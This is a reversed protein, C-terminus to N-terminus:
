FIGAQKLSVYRNDGIIIHDLLHIGVVMGAERFKKTTQIDERSPTPDGSPHNHMLIIYVANSRLATRFAERTSAISSNITGKSLEFDGLFRHKTNLMVIFLHETELHRLDEMYYRAIIEPSVFERDLSIRTKSIRRSLEAVCKIEIAKIRGIGKIEQM